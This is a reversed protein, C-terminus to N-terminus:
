RVVAVKAVVTTAGDSTAVAIHYVGTAVRLGAANCVDWVFTGGHSRGVCVLQGSASLIRVEADDVLGEIRVNGRYEPRVPNPYVHINDRELQEAPESADGELNILGKDTGIFIEGTRPHVALSRINDSLIPSNSTDYHAITQLGDSSVLYVGSGTTGIWKRDAGDLAIATINVDALLYDAYNTGDNRPVKIQTVHFDSKLYDEPQPIVFLGKDTGIWISGSRDQVMCSPVLDSYFIGDTNTWSSRYRSRDDSTDSITGNFDLCLIGPQLAGWWRQIVWLRGETDFLTQDLKQSGEITSVKVPIWQDSGKQLVYIADGQQANSVAWLNHKNDYILGDTRVYDLLNTPAASKFPSNDHRYQAIIKGDRYEYIGTRGTSVFHHNADEPDQVISTIDQFKRGVWGGAASPKELTTWRDDQYLLAAYPYVTNDGAPDMTGTAVLLRDGVFNMRFFNDYPPGWPSEAGGVVIDSQSIAGSGDIQYARIGRAGEAAWLTGRGDACLSLWDNHYTAASIPREVSSETYHAIYDAGSFTIGGQGFVARSYFRDSLTTFQHNDGRKTVYLGRSPEEPVIAYLADGLVYFRPDTLEEYSSWAHVDFLNANLDQYRVSGDELVAYIRGDFIASHVVKGVRYYGRIVQQSLDIRIVGYTTSILAEDGCINLNRVSIDEDTVQAYQPMNSVSYTDTDLLDINGNDYVLVLCGRTQAFSMYKISKDSLIGEAKELFTVSEQQTDYVLLNGNMVAFLKQGVLVCQSAENYALHTTWKQQAQAVLTLVLLFLTQLLRM